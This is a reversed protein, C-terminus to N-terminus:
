GPANVNSRCLSVCLTATGGARIVEICVVGQLGELGELHVHMYLML